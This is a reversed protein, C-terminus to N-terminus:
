FLRVTMMTMRQSAPARRWVQIKDGSTAFQSSNGTVGGPFAACVRHRRPASSPVTRTSGVLANRTCSAMWQSATRVSTSAHRACAAACTVNLPARARAVASNSRSKKLHVSAPLLAAQTTAMTTARLPITETGNLQKVRPQAHYHHRPPQATWESEVSWNRSKTWTLRRAVAM